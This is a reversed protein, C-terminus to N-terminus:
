AIEIPFALVEDLSAAAALVMLLREIGLATGSCPPLGSQMAALLRSEVPLAARGSEVRRKANRRFRTRLEEADLLEHYGNAIEVGDLFLEFREAVRYSGAAGRVTRTRALQSQAVPFDCVIAARLTPQIREAFLLDLWHEVQEDEPLNAFSAPYAIKEADAVRHLSEPSARHPDIGFREGFLEAYSRRVFEAPFRRQRPSESAPGTEATARILEELLDMGGQYDDGVRYWELMTFEVNHFRGRDGRRFVPGIQYVADMGAALLRKMAFEPSTQLYYTRNGHHNVPLAADDLVVPEVHRDVITDASLIPTAVEIFRREDFFRRLRRMTEARFRLM